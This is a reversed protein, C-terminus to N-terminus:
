FGSGGWGGAADIAPKFWGAPLNVNLFQTFFLFIALTLALGVALDRAIRASGFGRAVAAFLAAGAIVFGARHILLIQAFLGVTVWIFAAACFRHEGRAAPDDPTAGRWGGSLAEYLLRAGLLLLGAAVAAPMANPGVRAYGGASPLRATGFAIFIGLALVGLSLVLEATKVRM